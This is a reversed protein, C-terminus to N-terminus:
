DDQAERTARCQRFLVTLDRKDATVKVRSKGPTLPPIRVDFHVILSSRHVSCGCSNRVTFYRPRLRGATTMDIPFQISECAPYKAPDRERIATAKWKRQFSRANACTLALELAVCNGM